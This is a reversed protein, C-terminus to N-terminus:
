QQSYMRNLLNNNSSVKPQKEIKDRIWSVDNRTEAVDVKIQVVDKQLSSITFWIAGVVTTIVTIFIALQNWKVNENEKSM